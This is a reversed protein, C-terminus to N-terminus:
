KEIVHQKLDSSMFSQTVTIDEMKILKIRENEINLRITITGFTPYHKGLIYQLLKTLEQM